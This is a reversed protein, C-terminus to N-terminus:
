GDSAFRLRPLRHDRPGQEPQRPPAKGKSSYDSAGFAASLEQVGTPPTRGTEPKPPRKAQEAIEHSITVEAAAEMLVRDLQGVCEGAQADFAERVAGPNEAVWSLFAEHTLEARFADLFAACWKRFGAPMGAFKQRAADVDARAEEVKSSTFRAIVNEM